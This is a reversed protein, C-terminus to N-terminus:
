IVEFDPVFFEALEDSYGTCYLAACMPAEFERLHLHRRVIGSPDHRDYVELFGLSVQSQSYLLVLEDDSVPDHFNVPYRAALSRTLDYDALLCSARARAQPSHVLVAKLVLLYRLAMARTATRAGLRWGPGYAHVEVGHELLHRIYRARLAYNGGVFSVSISRPVAHPKYYRLNSAM